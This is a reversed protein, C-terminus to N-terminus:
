PKWYYKEKKYLTSQWGEKAVKHNLLKRCWWTNEGTEEALQGATIADKPPTNSRVEQAIEELLKSMDVGKMVTVSTQAHANKTNTRAM